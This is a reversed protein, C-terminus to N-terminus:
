HSNQSDSVTVTTTCRWGTLTRRKTTLTVLRMSAYPCPGNQLNYMIILTSLLTDLAYKTKKKERQKICIMGDYAYKTRLVSARDFTIQIDV